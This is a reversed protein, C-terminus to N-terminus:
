LRGLKAPFYVYYVREPHKPDVNQFNIGIKSGLMGASAGQYGPGRTPVGREAHIKNVFDVVPGNSKLRNTVPDKEGTAAHRAEYLPITDPM